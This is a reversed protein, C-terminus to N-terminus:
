GDENVKTVDILDIKFNDIIAVVLYEDEESNEDEFDSLTDELEEEDLESLDEEFNTVDNEGM